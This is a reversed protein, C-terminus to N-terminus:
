RVRERSRWEGEISRVRGRSRFSYHLLGTRFERRCFDLVEPHSPYHRTQVAVWLERIFNWKPTYVNLSHLSGTKSSVWSPSCNRMWSSAFSKWWWRRTRQMPQACERNAWQLFTRYEKVQPTGSIKLIYKIDM